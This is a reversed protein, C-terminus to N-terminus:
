KTEDFYSPEDQHLSLKKWSIMGPWGELTTYYIEANVDYEAGELWTMEDSDYRVAKRNM